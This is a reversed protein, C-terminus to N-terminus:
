CNSHNIRKYTCFKFQMGKDEFVESEEELMWNKDKDFNEIYTDAIFEKNFKTIYAIDCYPMLEKYVTGGGIVYLRDTDYNKVYELLEDISNVVVAEEKKYNKDRTLIINTRDKLPKEGPFTSLTKKGLIVVNNITKERFFKMDTSVHALLKGKYGIGWNNDASVIMKM